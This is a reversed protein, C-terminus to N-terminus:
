SKTKVMMIIVFLEFTVVPSVGFSNEGSIYVRQFDLHNLISTTIINSCTTPDASDSHKHICQLENKPVASLICFPSFFLIM